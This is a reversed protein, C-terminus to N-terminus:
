IYICTSINTQGYEVPELKNIINLANVLPKDNFKLRKDSAAVFSAGCYLGTARLSMKSTFQQGIGWDFQGSSHTYIIRAKSDVGSM